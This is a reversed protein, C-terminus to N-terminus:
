DLSVKEKAKQRYDRAEIPNLNLELIEAEVKPDVTVVKKKKNKEM